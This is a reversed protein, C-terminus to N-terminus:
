SSSILTILTLGKELMALLLVAVSQQVHVKSQQQKNRAAEEQPNGSSGAM